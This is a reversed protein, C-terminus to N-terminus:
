PQTDAASPLDQRVSSDVGKLENLPHDFLNIVDVIETPNKFQGGQFDPPNLSLTVTGLTTGQVIQEAQRPTVLLTILSPPQAQAQTTTTVGTGGIGSQPVVTTAGVALVKLGPMLFATVRHNANNPPGGQVPLNVIVNVKDGPTVFGGVAHQADLSVTIAEHGKPISGSVTSVIQSAAVFEDSVVLTGPFIDTAAVRGKFQNLLAQDAAPVIRDPPLSDRPIRTTAFLKDALIQDFVTGRAIRDRAVLATVFGKNHEARQDANTVYKWVLVGAVAALVIAAITSIIRWNRVREGKGRVRSARGTRQM